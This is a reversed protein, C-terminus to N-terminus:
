PKSARGLVISSLIVLGLRLPQSPLDRLWDIMSVKDNAEDSLKRAGSLQVM